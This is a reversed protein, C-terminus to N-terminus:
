KAGGATLLFYTRWYWDFGTKRQLSLIEREGSALLGALEDSGAGRMRRFARLGAAKGQLYAWGAGHRAAVVGWLGQAALLPWMWRLVLRGPYHKAVLLVQNRAILRVVRPNWRGLTASGRHRVVAEPVYVGECRALACRIGLDVDELYSEFREDFLGVRRFLGARFLTATAPAIVAPRERSFEPGDLRGQGARWACAGRCLLDYAGDLRRSDEADLIKGVAFWAQRREAAEVLRALWDGAPEVDNNVLAIWESGCAEIGRNVARSFGANSEMRIVRAGLRRAADASGDSSGNDVVVIESLAYTQAHLLGILRELFERRNWNPIVATVRPGSM